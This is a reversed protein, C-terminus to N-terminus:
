HEEVKALELLIIRFMDNFIPISKKKSFRTESFLRAEKPSTLPFKPVTTIRIFSSNQFSFM